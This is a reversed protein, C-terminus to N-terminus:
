VSSSIGNDSHTMNGVLERNISMQTAVLRQSCCVNNCTNNGVDALIDTPYIGLLPITLDFPMSM